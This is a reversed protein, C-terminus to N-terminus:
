EVWIPNSVAFARKGPHLPSLDAAGKVHVVIWSGSNTPVTITNVYTNATGDGLPMADETTITKGDVIFEIKDAAIFSAGQVSITLEHDGAGKITDGPGEGGPGKVELLLGGSITSSGSLIGDRVAEPTLMAPDDHGFDFCTRPYGVPSTRLKHSDSSGVASVRSGHNLMAFWAAVEDDRNGEFSSDNFVEIADFNEDWYENTGKGTDVDFKATSFYGGFGSSLPHNIILAPKQSLADVADFVESVPKGLWDIAGNNYTGPKPTMPVVGFHGYSFTTLELSSMGFAWKELGLKKVVPGFDVVWEHESSVPIDLGDAVAGKVKFDIPDTSDASHFSHIHFDACMIGTSDVSHELVADIKTANGAVVDVTEDHLEYEYGRSVIVRHEGPPVVLTTAGEMVFEQYLRGRAEDLVGHTAPTGLPEATPIVQVRVPLSVQDAQRKATIEITGHPEFNLSVDKTDQAVNVGIHVYGRKQAELRLAEGARGHVTFSGDEGTVTRSIYVDDEDLVHIWADAMPKGDTDLLTGTLERGADEGDVRRQALLLGDLYPGGAIIEARDLTTVECSPAKFGTGQFMAFGSQEIGYGLPGDIARWAFNWEGSIFGLWASDIVPKDFAAEPTFLQNRSGHFFGYIEDKAAKDIGFDLDDEGGNAVSVRLTVYEADPELVYDYAVEFDFSTGALVSLPGDLFPIIKLPGSARVIAAKGDSGDALVSVNTADPEMLGIGILTEGYMSLGMPKGDDGVKDIALISGGFRGYGDSLGAKEIVVAIHQNILVFDGDQIPQRGHAPQAFSSADPIVAARANSASKAGYPDAHGTDSGVDFAPVCSPPPPPDTDDTTSCASSSLAVLGVFLFHSFRNM